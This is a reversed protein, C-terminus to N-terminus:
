HADLMMTLEIERLSTVVSSHRLVRSVSQGVSRSVPQVTREGGGEAPHSSIDLMRDRGMSPQTFGEERITM